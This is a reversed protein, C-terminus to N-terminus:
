AATCVRRLKELREIADGALSSTAQPDDLWENLVALVAAAEEDTLEKPMPDPIAMLVKSHANEAGRHASLALRDALDRAEMDLLQASRKYEINAIM